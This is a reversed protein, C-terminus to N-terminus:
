PNGELCQGLCRAVLTAVVPKKYPTSWRVGTEKVMLDSVKQGITQFLTETPKKDILRQELSRLRRPHPLISGPSLIAKVIVGGDLELGVVLNLRAIALAKRRGLKHFILKMKPSPMPIRIRVLLEDPDLAVRYPSQLFNELSLQRIGRPSQLDLVADLAILPPVTDACPSAHCLNGGVTARNRIQPSGISGAVKALVPIHQLILPSSALEAMTTLPGILIEGNERQIGSLESIGSIDILRVLSGEQRRLEILLDTGGALVAKPQRGKRLEGL